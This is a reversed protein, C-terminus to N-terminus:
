GVFFSTVDPLFTLQAPFDFKLIAYDNQRYTFHWYKVVSRVNKVNQKALILLIRYETHSNLYVTPNRSGTHM